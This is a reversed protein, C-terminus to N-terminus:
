NGAAPIAAIQQYYQKRETYSDTYKNIVATCEDITQCNQMNNMSWFGMASLTGAGVETIIDALERSTMQYDGIVKNIEDVVASYNSIFTLQFFGGGRYIYGDSEEYPTTAPGNGYRSGYAKAGIAPQNAAHASTRGDETAETPSNRYYSFTSKLASDTYNLNERVSQLGSGVEAKVQALFFNENVEELINFDRAYSGFFSYFDDLALDTASTFIQGLKKRSCTVDYFPLAGDEDKDEVTVTIIKDKIEFKKQKM